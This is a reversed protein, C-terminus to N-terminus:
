IQAYPFRTVAESVFSTVREGREQDGTCAYLALAVKVPDVGTIAWWQRENGFNTQERHHRNCLPITYADDPKNGLGSIPKGVTPDAYRVHACETSTNDNCLLCPLGRIYDLHGNDKQRPNRQM